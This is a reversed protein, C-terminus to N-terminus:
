LGFREACIPGIGREISEKVTLERGCCACSGTEQGYLKAAGTVDRAMVELADTIGSDRINTRTSEVWGLYKPQPGYMGEEMITSDMIYVRGAIKSPKVIFTSLRLKIRKLGRMQASVISDVIGGFNYQQAEIEDAVSNADVALKHAWAYQAPSLKHFKAALDQAFSSSLGKLTQLVQDDSLTSTFSISGERRTNVTFVQATATATTM